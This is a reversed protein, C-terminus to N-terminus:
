LRRVAEPTVRLSATVSSLGGGDFTVCTVRAGTDRIKDERGWGM